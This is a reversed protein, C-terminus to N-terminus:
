PVSFALYKTWAAHVAVGEGKSAPQGFQPRLIKAGDRLQDLYDSWYQMMKIREDWYEGRAYARRVGNNDAHGLQREIADADDVSGAVCEGIEAIGPNGPMATVTGVQDSAVLKRVIAHERGGSGIVLVRKDAMERDSWLEQNDVSDM